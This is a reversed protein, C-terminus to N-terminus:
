GFVENELPTEVTIPWIAVYLKAMVIGIILASAELIPLSISLKADILPITSFPSDNSTLFM